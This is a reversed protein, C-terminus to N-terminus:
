LLFCANKIISVAGLNLQAFLTVYHYSCYQFPGKELLVISHFKRKKRLIHVKSNGEREICEIERFAASKFHM